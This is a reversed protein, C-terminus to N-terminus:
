EDDDDDPEESLKLGLAALGKGHAGMFEEPYRDTPRTQAWISRNLTDDDIRDPREYDLRDARAVLARQDESLMSTKAGRQENLPQAPQHASYPKFDPVEQFCAEM